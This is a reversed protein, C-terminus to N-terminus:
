ESKESFLIMFGGRWLLSHGEIKTTRASRDTSAVLMVQACSGTRYKESIVLPGFVPLLSAEAPRVGFTSPAITV